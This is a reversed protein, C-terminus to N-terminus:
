AVLKGYGPCSSSSVQADPPSFNEVLTYHRVAPPIRQEQLMLNLENALCDAMGVIFGCGGFFQPTLSGVIMGM